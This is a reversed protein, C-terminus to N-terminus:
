GEQILYARPNKKEKSTNIRMLKSGQSDVKKLAKAPLDCINRTGRPWNKGHIGASCHIYEPGLRM